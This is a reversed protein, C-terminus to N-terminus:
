NSSYIDTMYVKLINETEVKKDLKLQVKVARKNSVEERFINTEENYESKDYPDVDTMWSRIVMKEDIVTEITQEVPIVEFFTERVVSPSKFLIKYNDPLGEDSYIEFVGYTAFEEDTPMTSKFNNWADHEADYRYFTTMNEDCCIMYSKLSIVTIKALAENRKLVNAGGSVLQTDTLYDKPNNLLYGTPKYSDATLVYGSGGCGGYKNDDGSNAYTGSGGYWGGGGAGGYGSSSRYNGNGGYGFGGGVNSGQPSNTQTGPGPTTGYLESGPVKDGGTIGGGISGYGNTAGQSGGGGAVIIRSYLSDSDVRIDTGGGGATSNESTSGPHGGGNFSCVPNYKSQWYEDMHNAYLGSGGVSVYIDRPEYVGFIGSAYGGWEYQLQQQDTTNPRFGGSAGYCELKYTGPILLTHEVRGVCCPFLIEDGDDLDTTEKYIVIKPEDSLGVGLFTNSFYLDSPPTYRDPFPRYSDTTLVYGSGGSGNKSLAKLRTSYGGYWGGGGGGSGPTTYYGTSLSKDPADQGFGLSYGSEQSPYLYGNTNDYYSIGGVEGGGHGCYAYNSDNEWCQGGGGGAVIIRSCLSENYHTIVSIYTRSEVPKVNGGIMTPNTIFLGTILDYLGIANDSKRKAPIFNRTCIDPYDEEDKMYMKCSYIRAHSPTNSPSGEINSDFLFLTYQDPSIVMQSPISNVLTDGNYWYLGARNFKITLRTNYLMEPGKTIPIKIEVDQGDIKIIKSKYGVGSMYRTILLDEIPPGEYLVFAGYGQGPVWETPDYVYIKETLIDFYYCDRNGPGYDDTFEPDRYMKGNDPNRYLEIFEDKGDEDKDKNVFKSFFTRSYTLDAESTGFLIEDRIRDSSYVMCDLSIKDGIGNHSTLIYETDLYSGIEGTNEIYELEDYEDPIYTRTEIPVDQDNISCRIDTGGGGAGGYKLHTGHIQPKGGNGGGNWGGQPIVHNDVGDTDDVDDADNIVDAGDEGVGGVAAYLTKQSALNLIGYTIGGYFPEDHLDTKGGPAGNCQILYEGPQLTFEEYEGTYSIEKYPEWIKNNYCLLSKNM